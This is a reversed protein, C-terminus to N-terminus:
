FSLGLGLSFSHDGAGNGQFGNSSAGYGAMAVAGGGLDYNAVIGWGKPDAVAAAAADYKGYNAGVTLAGTTYAVGIGMWSDAAVGNGVTDST